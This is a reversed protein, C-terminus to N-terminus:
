FMMKDINIISKKDQDLYKKLLTLNSTLFPNYEILINILCSYLCIFCFLTFLCEIPEISM